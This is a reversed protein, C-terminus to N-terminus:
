NAACAGADGAPVSGEFAPPVIGHGDFLVPLQTAIGTAKDRRRRQENIARAINWEDHAGYSFAVSANLAYYNRFARKDIKAIAPDTKARSEYYDELKRMDSVGNLGLAAAFDSPGVFYVFDFDEGLGNDGELIQTWMFMYDAGTAGGPLAYAKTAPDLLWVLGSDFRAALRSAVKGAVEANVGYYSGGVSTLPVSIYGISKGTGRESRIQARIAAVHSKIVAQLESNVCYCFRLRTCQTTSPAARATTTATLLVLLLSVLTRISATM